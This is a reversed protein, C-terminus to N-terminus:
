LKGFSRIGNGYNVNLVIWSATGEGFGIDTLEMSGADTPQEPAVYEGVATEVMYVITETGIGAGGPNTVKYVGEMPREITMTVGTAARLYEGAYNNTGTVDTVAVKRSVTTEFGNANSARYTVIYLGPEATNVVSNVPSLDSVSGTIDDTLKAGEETYTAGIPLKILEEGNLSISPYSVMVEKSVADTKEKKCAATLMLIGLCISLLPNTIRM